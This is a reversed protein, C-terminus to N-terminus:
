LQAHLITNFTGWTEFLYFVRKGSKVNNQSQVSWMSLSNIGKGDRLEWPKSKRPRKNAGGHMWDRATSRLRRRRCWKKKGCGKVCCTRVACKPGTNKPCITTGNNEWRPKTHRSRKTSERPRSVLLGRIISDTTSPRPTTWGTWPRKKGKKYQRHQEMKKARPDM